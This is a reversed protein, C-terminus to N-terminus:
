GIPVLLFHLIIIYTESPQAVDTSELSRTASSDRYKTVLMGWSNTFHVCVDSVNNIAPKMMKKSTLGVRSHQWVLTCTQPMLM